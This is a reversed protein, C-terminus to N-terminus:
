SKKIVLWSKVDDDVTVHLKLHHERVFEDVAETVGCDFVGPVSKHLYDHGALIGGRKVTPWWIAIDEKVSAYDHKADIYVFDFRELPSPLISGREKSTQRCFWARQGFKSLRAKASEYVENFDNQQTGDLYEERSQNIWPDVLFLRYGNWSNLITEANEGRFVGVEVGEETLGMNNLLAGFDDRKRLITDSLLRARVCEIGRMDKPGHLWVPYLAQGYLPNGVGGYRKEAFLWECGRWENYGPKGLGYDSWILKSPAANPLIIDSLDVDWGRSGPMMIRKNKKWFTTSIICNGNVHNACGDSRDFWAGLIDKGCEKWEKILMNLWDKHLPVCDAEIFLVGTANVRGSRVLEICEVISERYLGNPGAPWGTEHKRGKFKRVNFKESAYAITEEDFSADFRASFLFTVDTRKIPELDALLRALAMAQAKDGEWFM